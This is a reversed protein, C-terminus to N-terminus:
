IFLLVKQPESSFLIHATAKAVNDENLNWLTNGNDNVYKIGLISLVHNLLVTNTDQLEIRCEEENIKDLPWNKEIITDLLNRTVEQIAIQSIM